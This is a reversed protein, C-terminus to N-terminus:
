GGRATGIQSGTGKRGGGKAATQDKGPEPDEKEDLTLMTAKDENSDALVINLFPRAAFNSAYERDVEGVIYQKKWCLLGEGDPDPVIPNGEDDVPPNGEEDPEPM